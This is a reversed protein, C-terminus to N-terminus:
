FISKRVEILEKDINAIKIKCEEKVNIFGYGKIILDSNSNINLEFYNEEKFDFIKNLELLNSMYFSWSNIKDNNFLIIKNEITIGSNPKIRYTIPKIFKKPNVKKILEWDNLLSKEMIFGPSDILTLDNSIKLYIFDLTTNPVLSTTIISKANNNIEYLANILSSKGSNVFGVIYSTNYNNNLLYNTLQKLNTKKLSSIFLINSEIKYYDSIINKIREVNINKPMLDLKSIVLTKPNNLNKFESIIENNINLFDVVFIVHHNTNEIEKIIQNKEKDLIAVKADNYHKIKYCRECYDANLKPTFGVKLPEDHQLVIGCGACKIM